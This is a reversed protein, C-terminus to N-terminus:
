AKWFNRDFQLDMSLRNWNDTMDAVALALLVTRVSTEKIQKCQLDFSTHLTEAWHVIIVRESEKKEEKSQM